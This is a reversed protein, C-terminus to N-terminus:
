RSANTPSSRSGPENQELDVSAVKSALDVGDGAAVVNEHDKSEYDQLCDAVEDKEPAPEGELTQDRFAIYKDLDGYQQFPEDATTAADPFDDFIQPKYQALDEADTTEVAQVDREFEKYMYPQYQDLDEPVVAETGGALNEKHKYPGYDQLDDYVPQSSNTEIAENHLYPKYENLDEYAPTQKVEVSENSFYPKYDGLDEYGPAEQAEVGENNFVPKYDSLDDYAQKSAAGVNIDDLEAKYKDLEGEQLPFEQEEAPLHNLSYEESATPTFSYKNETSDFTFLTPGPDSFDAPEVSDVPM